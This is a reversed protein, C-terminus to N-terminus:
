VIEGAELGRRLARQGRRPWDEDVRAEFWRNLAHRRLGGVDELVLVIEDAVDLAALADLDEGRRHAAPAGSLCEAFFRRFSAARARMSRRRDGKASSWCSPM